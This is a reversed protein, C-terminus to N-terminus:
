TEDGSGVKRKKFYVLLGVGVVAVSAVSVVAVPALPFPVEVSFYVIESAGTNGSLDTVYVTINHEGKPM